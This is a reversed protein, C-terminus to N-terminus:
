LNEDLESIVAKSRKGLCDLLENYRKQLRHYESTMNMGALVLITPKDVTKAKGMIQKEVKVVEKEFHAAIQRANGDENETKFTFKRGFIKLTVLHNM